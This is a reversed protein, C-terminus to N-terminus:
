GDPPKEIEIDDGSVRVAFTDVKGSAPPDVAEGTAPDFTGAHWPCQLLKGEMFGEDLPGGMHTCLSDIACLQGEVNCIAVRRDGVDVGIVEGPPVDTVKAVKIFELM